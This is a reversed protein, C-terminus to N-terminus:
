APSDESARCELTMLAHVRLGFLEARNVFRWIRITSSTMVVPAVSWSVARARAVLWGAEIVATTPARTKYIM